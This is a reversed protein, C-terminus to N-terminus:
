AAVRALDRKAHGIMDEVLKVEIIDVGTAKIDIILMDGWLIIASDDAAAVAVLYAHYTVALSKANKKSINM